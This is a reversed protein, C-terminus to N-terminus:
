AFLRQGARRLPSPLKTTLSLLAQRVDSDLRRSLLLLMAGYALIAAAGGALLQLPSVGSFSLSSVAAWAAGTTGLGILVPTLLTQLWETLGVGLKRGIVALVALTRLLVVAVQLQAVLLPSGVGVLFFAAILVILVVLQMRVERSIHDANWLVPTAVAWLLALPVGVAFWAFLPAAGVWAQGYLLRIIPEALVALVGGVPLSALLVVGLSLLFSRKTAHVDGRLRSTASFLVSQLGSNLAAMPTNVLNFATGYLGVAAASHLKAVVLKDLNTVWWNVINTVTVVGAFARFDAANVHRWKLGGDPAAAGWVIGLAVFSQILWAAVLSWVGAGAVALPIGVLVYGAVYGLMQSTQVPKFAMRRKLLNNSPSALATLLLVPSLAMLPWMLGRDGLLSAIAPALGMTLLTAGAGLVAQWTQVFQIEAATVVERHVLAYAFGSDAIYVMLGIVLSCSIFVGYTQPGLLRALLVQGMLQLVVRLLSGGIGWKLSSAISNGPGESM